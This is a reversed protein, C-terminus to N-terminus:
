PTTGDANRSDDNGTGKTPRVKVRASEVFPVVLVAELLATWYVLETDTILGYGVLVGAVAVLAGYVWRRVPENEKDLFKM